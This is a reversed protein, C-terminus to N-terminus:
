ELCLTRRCVSPSSLWRLLLLSLLPAWPQLEGRIVKVNFRLRRLAEEVNFNCKVLEYLAQPLSHTVKGALKSPSDSFMGVGHGWLWLSCGCCPGLALPQGM